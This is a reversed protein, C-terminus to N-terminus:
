ISSILVAAAVLAVGLASLAALARYNGAIAEEAAAAMRAARQLSLRWPLPAHKASCLRTLPLLLRHVWTVPCM